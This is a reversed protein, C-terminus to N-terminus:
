FVSSSEFFYRRWRDVNVTIFHGINSSKLDSLVCTVNFMKIFFNGVVFKLHSKGDIILKSDVLIFFTILLFVIVLLKGWASLQKPLYSSTFDVNNWKLSKSQFNENWIKQGFGFWFSSIELNVKSFNFLSSIPNILHLPIFTVM